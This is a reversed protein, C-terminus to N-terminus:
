PQVPFKTIRGLLFDVLLNLDTTSMSKDGNVNTHTYEFSGAAPVAIRIYRLIRKRMPRSGAQTVGSGEGKLATRRSEYPDGDFISQVPVRKLVQLFMTMLTISKKM